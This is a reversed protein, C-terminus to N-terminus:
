SRGPPPHAPTHLVHISCLPQKPRRGPTLYSDLTHTMPLPALIIVDEEEKNVMLVSARSTNTNQNDMAAGVSSDGAVTVTLTRSCLVQSM